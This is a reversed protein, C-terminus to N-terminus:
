HQTSLELMQFVSIATDHFINIISSLKVHIESIKVAFYGKFEM